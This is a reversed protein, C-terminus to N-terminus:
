LTTKELELAHFVNNYVSLKDILLKQKFNEELCEEKQYFSTSVISIDNKNLEIKFSTETENKNLTEIISFNNKLLWFFFFYNLEFLTIERDVFSIGTKTTFLLKYENLSDFGNIKEVEENSSIFDNMKLVETLFKINIM